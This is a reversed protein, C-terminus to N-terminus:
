NKSALHFKHLFRHIIPALVITAVTLYAIGSYLAYFSAFLKGGVTQINDVPGLGTLIMASNLTADIWSFKEIFHYGLIGIGWSFLTFGVAVSFNTMLRALFQEFPLLPEKHHEYM